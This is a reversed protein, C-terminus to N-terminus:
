ASFTPKITSACRVIMVSATIAKHVPTFQLAAQAPVTIPAFIPSATERSFM